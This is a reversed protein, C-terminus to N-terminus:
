GQKEAWIRRANKDAKSIKNKATQYAINKIEAIQRLEKCDVYKWELLDADDQTLSDMFFARVEEQAASLAEILNDLERKADIYRIYALDKSNAPSTQVREELRSTADRRAEDKLRVDEIKHEVRRKLYAPKGVFERYTM